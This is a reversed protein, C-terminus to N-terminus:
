ATVAGAQELLVLRRANYVACKIAFALENRALTVARVVKGGFHRLQGFVHEVRSRTRNIAKNRVQAREGLKKGARAKRAIGDKWGHRALVKRNAEHDYGRDALLRAATNAHDVIDPLTNGDDVNAPTVKWRRIFKWRVDM